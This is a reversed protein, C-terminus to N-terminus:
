EIKVEVIEGKADVIQMVMGKVLENNYQPVTFRITIKKTM